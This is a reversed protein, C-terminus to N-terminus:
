GGINEDIFDINIDQSGDELLILRISTVKTYVGTYDKLENGYDDCAKLLTIPAFFDTSAEALSGDWRATIGFSSRYGGYNVLTRSEYVNANNLITDNFLVKM